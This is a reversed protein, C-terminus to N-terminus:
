ETRRLEDFTSYLLQDLTRELVTELTPSALINSSSDLLNNYHATSPVSTSPTPPTDHTPAPFSRFDSLSIDSPTDTTDSVIAVNSVDVSNGSTDNDVFDRVDVRCLPCRPNTQFWRRLNSSRFRHGCQRIEMLEDGSHFPTLDIPCETTSSTNGSSDQEEYPYVRCARSIVDESVQIPVNEMSQQLTNWARGTTNLPIMYYQIYENRNSTGRGGTSLRNQFISAISALSSFPDGQRPQAQRPTHRTTNQTTRSPTRQRQRDSEERVTRLSNVRQTSTSRSRGREVRRHEQELVRYLRENMRDITRIMQMQSDHIMQVSENHLRIAELFDMCYM